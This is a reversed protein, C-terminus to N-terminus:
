CTSHRTMPNRVLLPPSLSFKAGKVVYTVIDMFVSGSFGRSHGLAHRLEDPTYTTNLVALIAGLRGCAFFLEVYQACNGAFIGVVDGRAIGAALLGRAVQRSRERLASYTYRIGESSCVLATKQGHRESQQDLLSGLHVDSLAPETPGNLISFTPPEKLHGLTQLVRQLVM